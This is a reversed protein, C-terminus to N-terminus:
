ETNEYGKRLVNSRTLVHDTFNRRNEESRSAQILIRGAGATSGTSGRDVETKNGATNENLPLNIQSQRSGPVPCGAKLSM